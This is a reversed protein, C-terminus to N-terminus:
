RQVVCLGREAPSVYIDLAGNLDSAWSWKPSCPDHGTETQLCLHSLREIREAGIINIPQQEIKVAGCKTGFRRLKHAFHRDHQLM